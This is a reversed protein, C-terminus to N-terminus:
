GGLARADALSIDATEEGLIDNLGECRGTQTRTHYHALRRGTSLVLPYEADAVEAPPTWEAPTFIGLGCTFQGDRHLFCTGPHSEDPVPGSSATGKSAPTSSAASSPHGPCVGRQGMDSQASDSEWYHGMRQAIERFIWWNPKAQGPPPSATRVRSVRRESNTFTGENESWAAAPLIVHAFRTTENPFIDQCVLFEASALEHEVKRIDPETNALNEGFIYFGRVRGDVLGEMMQPIMLGNEEPLKQIGWAGAFKERADADTVKQYGPFVNPLAGMDCAGQVNNQGRLPNVGGCEMGMNGLLMQLNAMTVVNNRGCTHETIGLTYCLMLPKVSALRKPGHGPDDGRPHRLHGGGKGASVEGRNGRLLDFDITCSNVFAKDYLDEEILVQMLSNTFAIDSGVRIPVHLDAFDALKHRRPDVLILKAGNMVANKLFTAAVPHAETMNSGVVLFMKARSFEDFSNTM